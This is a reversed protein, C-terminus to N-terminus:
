IHGTAQRAGCGDHRKGYIGTQAVQARIEESLYDAIITFNHNLTVLKLALIEVLKFRLKVFQLEDHPLPPREISRAFRQAADNSAEAITAGTFLRTDTIAENEIRSLLCVPERAILSPWM